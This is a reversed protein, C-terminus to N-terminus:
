VQCCWFRLLAALSGWSKFKVVDIVFSNQSVEKLFLFNFASSAEYWHTERNKWEMQTSHQAQWSFTIGPWVFHQVQWAFDGLLAAPIISWFAGKKLFDAGSRRVCRIFMDRTSRRGPSICRQLDEAFAGLKGDNQFISCVRVNQERKATLKWFRDSVSTSQVHQSPFRSRAVTGCRRASKWWRLKWLHDSVTLKKLKQSPFTSRAVVAHVNWWRLKWFHEWFPTDQANQSRFTRRAVVAHLKEDRMQGSPEAGTAKALRSKSGGSGCLMPYVGTQRSKEVKERVQMKKGRVRERRQDEKTKEEGRREEGRRKEERRKGERRQSKWREQKWRDM